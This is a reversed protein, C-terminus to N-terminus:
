VDGDGFPEDYIFKRIMELATEPQDTPVLHGANHVVVHMLNRWM